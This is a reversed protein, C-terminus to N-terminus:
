DKFHLFEDPLNMPDIQSTDIQFYKFWDIKEKETHLILLNENQFYIMCNNEISIPEGFKGEMNNKTKGVFDSEGLEKWKIKSRIGVVIENDTEYQKAKSNNWPKWTAFLLSRNYGEKRLDFEVAWYCYFKYTSDPAKKFFEEKFDSAHGTHMHMTKNKLSYFDFPNAFFNKLSDDFPKKEAIVVAATSDHQIVIKEDPQIENDASQNVCSTIIPFLSIYYLRLM